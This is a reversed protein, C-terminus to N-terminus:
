VEPRKYNARYPRLLLDSAEKNDVIEKKSADWKVTTGTYYSIMALQTTATSKFADDITCTLMGKDKTMSANIFAAVHDDQMNPSPFNMVEPQAGRGAPKLVLRNEYAFLSAKEGYFFVGNNFSRDIDGPGWMRHQWVVPCQEFEMYSNLTDPTTIKGKLANLTGNTNFSGPMDFDMIKRIIDINHIGWDYLHGHSYTKELRWAIHGISPRYPLKPAPGCWEEWDLTEPPAQITTDLLDPNYNIQAGIEYITGLKGEGIIEKAQHFANSNRRQFGIQVINGAKQAAKVMTEGERVDYSLPKECYIDLGKECAAIFQLAHWHPQTAIFVAQLGAMNLLDKYEKFEMPRSGQIKSIEDASSKLHASDVDCVGIVEVKESRLAANIDIMGWWGCGILGVKLKDDTAAFTPIQLASVLGITAISSKQIFSRRKM